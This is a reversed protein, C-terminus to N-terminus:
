LESRIDEIEWRRRLRSRLLSAEVAIGWNASPQQHDNTKAPKM